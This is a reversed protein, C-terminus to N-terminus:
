GGGKKRPSERSGLTRSFSPPKGREKEKKAIKIEKRAGLRSFVPSEDDGGDDNSRRNSRDDDEDDADDQEDDDDEDADVRTLCSKTRM